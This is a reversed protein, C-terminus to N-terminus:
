SSGLFHCTTFSPLHMCACCLLISSSLSSMASVSSIAIKSLSQGLSQNNKRCAPHAPSTPTELAGAACIWAAWLIYLVPPPAHSHLPGFIALCVYKAQAAPAWLTGAAALLMAGVITGLSRMMMQPGSATKAPGLLADADPQAQSHPLSRCVVPPGHQHATGQQLFIDARRIITSGPYQLSCKHCSRTSPLGQRAAHGPTTQLGVGTRQWLLM